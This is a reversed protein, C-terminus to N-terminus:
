DAIRPYQSTMHLCILTLSTPYALSASHHRSLFTPQRGQMWKGLEPRFCSQPFAHLWWLLILHCRREWNEGWLRSTLNYKLCKRSRWHCEVICPEEMNGASHTIILSSTKPSGWNRINDCSLGTKPGITCRDGKERLTKQMDCEEQFSVIWRMGQVRNDILKSCPGM